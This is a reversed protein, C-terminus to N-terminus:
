SSNFFFALISHVQLPTRACSLRARVTAKALNIKQVPWNPKKSANNQQVANVWNWNRKLHSFFASDIGAAGKRDGPVFGVDDKEAQAITKVKVAEIMEPKRPLDELLIDKGEVVNRGGLDTNICTNWMEYWYKEVDAMTAFHFKTVPYPKDEIKHYGASSSTTDLLETKRNLYIFVQDKEKLMQPGFQVLGVFCLRTVLEHVSFMYKRRLFLLNRIPSPIDRMLFHQKVPHDLYEQLGPVEFNVNHVKVFISLPMRLLVDRILAWGKPYGTSFSVPYFFFGVRIM